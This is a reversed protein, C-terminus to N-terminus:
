DRANRALLREAISRDADQLTVNKILERVLQQEAPTRIGNCALVLGASRTEPASLLSLSPLGARSLEKDFGSFHSVDTTTEDIWDLLGTLIDLLQEISEAVSVDGILKREFYLHPDLASRSVFRIVRLCYDKLTEHTATNGTQGAGRAM